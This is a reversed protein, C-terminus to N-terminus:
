LHKEMMIRLKIFGRLPIFNNKNKHQNILIRQKDNEKKLDSKEKKIIRLDSELRKILEDKENEFRRFNSETYQITSM